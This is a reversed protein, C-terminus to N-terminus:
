KIVVLLVCCCVNKTSMQIKLVTLIRYNNTNETGRRLHLESLRIPHRWWPDANEGDDKSKYLFESISYESTCEDSSIKIIAYAGKLAYIRVWRRNKTNKDWLIIKLHTAVRMDISLLLTEEFSGPTVHQSDHAHGSRSWHITVYAYFVKKPVITRVFGTLKCQCWDIGINQALSQEKQSWRPYDRQLHSCFEGHELRWVLRLKLNLPM